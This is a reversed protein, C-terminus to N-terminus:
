RIFNKIYSIIEQLAQGQLNGLAGNGRITEAALSGELEDEGYGRAVNQTTNAIKLGLGPGSLMVDPLSKGIFSSLRGTDNLQPELESQTKRISARLQETDSLGTKQSLGALSDAIKGGANVTGLLVQEWWPSERLKVQSAALNSPILPM